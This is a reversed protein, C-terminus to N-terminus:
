ETILWALALLALAAITYVFVVVSSTLVVEKLFSRVTITPLRIAKYIIVMAVVLPLMWLMSLPNTGIQVPVTFNAFVFIVIPSM